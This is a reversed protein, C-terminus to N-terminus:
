TRKIYINELKAIEQLTEFQPMNYDFLLLSTFSRCTKQTLTRNKVNSTQKWNKKEEKKQKGILQQAEPLYYTKCNFTLM